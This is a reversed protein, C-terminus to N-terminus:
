SKSASQLVVLDGLVRLAEDRHPAVDDDDARGTLEDPAVSPAVAATQGTSAVSGGASPTAGAALAPENAHKRKADAERRAILTSLKVM